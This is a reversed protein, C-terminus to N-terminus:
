SQLNTIRREHKEKHNAIANVAIHAPAHLPPLLGFPLFLEGCIVVCGTLVVTVM